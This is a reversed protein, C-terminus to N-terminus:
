KWLKAYIKAVSSYYLPTIEDGQNHNNFLERALPRNINEPINLKMAIENVIQGYDSLFVIEPAEMKKTDFKLGVAYYKGDSIIVDCKKIENELTKNSKLNYFVTDGVICDRVLKLSYNSDTIIKKGNEFAVQKAFPIEIRMGIYTVEATHKRDTLIKIGAIRHTGDTILLDSAKVQLRIKKYDPQYYFISNFSFMEIM